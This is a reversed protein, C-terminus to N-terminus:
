STESTKMVDLTAHLTTLLADLTQASNKDDGDGRLLLGNSGVAQVARLVTDIGYTKLDSSFVPVWRLTSGGEPSYPVLIPLVM